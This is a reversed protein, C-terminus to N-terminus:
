EEVQGGVQGDLFDNIAAIPFIVRRGAKRVRLEGRDVLKWISRQSLGLLQAATKVNVALPLASMSSPTNLPKIQM